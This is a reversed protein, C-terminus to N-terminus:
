TMPWVDDLVDLEENRHIEGFEDEYTPLSRRSFDPLAIAMFIPMYSHGVSSPSSFPNWTNAIAVTTPKVETENEV